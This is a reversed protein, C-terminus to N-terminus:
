CRKKMVGVRRLGTSGREFAGQELRDGRGSGFGNMGEIGPEAVTRVRSVARHSWFEVIVGRELALREYPIVM